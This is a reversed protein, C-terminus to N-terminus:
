SITYLPYMTEVNQIRVEANDKGINENSDGPKRLKKIKIVSGVNKIYFIVYKTNQVRYVLGQQKTM